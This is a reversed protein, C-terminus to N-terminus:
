SNCVSDGQSGADFLRIAVKNCNNCTIDYIKSERSFTINEVYRVRSVCQFLNRVGTDRGAKLPPFLPFKKPSNVGRFIEM